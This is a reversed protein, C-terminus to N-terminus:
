VEVRTSLRQYHIQADISKSKDKLPAEFFTDGSICANGFSFAAKM